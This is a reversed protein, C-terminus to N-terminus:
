CKSAPRRWKNWTEIITYIRLNQCLVDQYGTKPGDGKNPLAGAPLPFWQPWIMLAKGKSEPEVDNMAADLKRINRSAFNGTRTNYQNRQWKKRPAQSSRTKCSEQQSQWYIHSITHTSVLSSAPIAIIFVLNGWLPLLQCAYAMTYVPRSCRSSHRFVALCVRGFMNIESRRCM